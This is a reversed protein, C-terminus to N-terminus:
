RRIAFFSGGHPSKVGTKIVKPPPPPVNMQQLQMLSPLSTCLNMGFAMAQQYPGCDHYEPTIHSLDPERSKKIAM